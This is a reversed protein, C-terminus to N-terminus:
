LSIYRKQLFYNYKFPSTVKEMLFPRIFDAVVNVIEKLFESIGISMNSTDGKTRPKMSRGQEQQSLPQTQIRMTSTCADM